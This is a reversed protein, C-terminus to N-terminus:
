EWIRNIAPNFHVHATGIEGQRQKAVILELRNHAHRMADEWAALDDADSGDPKAREIYYSDRYCFIVGDADQELQGSERLDSMIPRKDERSEVARSLQSLAVVPAEFRMALGKLALSVETIQEYRSKADSRMLQAYDVLVLPRKESGKHKRLIQRAGSQLLNADAFEKPLFSIPLDSLMAAARKMDEGQKASYEGNRLNAYSVACNNQAMQESLARVAMARPIMELSAIIVPHGARAANLGINLMVGTKGMSPRGGLLWMDGPYFGGVFRDLAPIGSSVRGSTDGQFAAVSDKVADMIAATMSVSKLSRTETVSLAAEIKSAVDSARIEGSNLDSIARAMLDMLDRKAKAEGLVEAYSAALRPSVAHGAIKALYGKGGLQALVGLSETPFSAAVTVPTVPQDNAALGACVKFITAHVPDYFLGKGGHSHVVDVGCFGTLIAGLLQQEAEISHPPMDPNITEM